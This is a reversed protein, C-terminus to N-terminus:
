IKLLKKIKRMAKKSYVVVPWFKPYNNRVDYEFEELPSKEKWSGNCLHIAYSDKTLYAYNGVFVEPKLIVMNNDLFQESDNYRYGYKEAKKTIYHGIIFDECLIEGNEGILHKDNYFDLCEKIFPNGRSSGMIAAQINLGYIYEDENIPLQQGNLKSQELHTFNGPHIEHSTFFDYTLFEDFRKFVKVDSDLYIGGEKYLAFLRIYDAVFAWKKLEFAEKVFPVSDFNFSKADWLRLVYDPMLQKWSDICQQLFIPIDEGSFWCYHITKPIRDESDIM